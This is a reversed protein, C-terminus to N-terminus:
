ELHRTQFSDSSVLNKAMGIFFWHSSVSLPLLSVALFVTEGALVTSATLNQNHCEPTHACVSKYMNHINCVYYTRM